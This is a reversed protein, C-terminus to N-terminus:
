EIAALPGAITSHRKGSAVWADLQGKDWLELYSGQGIWIVRDGIGVYQMLHPSISLRCRTDLSVQIAGSEVFRRVARADRSVSAAIAAHIRSYEDISYVFLCSNLGKGVVLPGSGVEARFRAPLRVRGGDVVCEATGEM